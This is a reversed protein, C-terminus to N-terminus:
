AAVLTLSAPSPEFSENDNVKSLAVGLPSQSVLSRLWDHIAHQILGQCDATISKLESKYKERDDSSMHDAYYDINIALTDAIDQNNSLRPFYSLAGLPDLEQLATIAVESYQEPKADWVKVWFDEPQSIPLNVLTYLISTKVAYTLSKNSKQIFSEAFKTLSPSVETLELETVLAMLSSVYDPSVRTAPSLNGVLVVVAAALDRRTSRELEAEASMIVSCVGEDPYARPIPEKGSLARHLWKEIEKRNLEELFSLTGAM